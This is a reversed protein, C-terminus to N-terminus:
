FWRSPEGEMFNSARARHAEELAVAALSEIDRASIGAFVPNGGLWAATEKASM